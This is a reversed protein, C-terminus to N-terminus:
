ASTLCSATADRIASSIAPIRSINNPLWDSGAYNRNDHVGRALQAFQDPSLAREISAVYCDCKQQAGGM